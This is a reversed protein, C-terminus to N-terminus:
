FKHGFHGVVESFASISWYRSLVDWGYSSTFFTWNDRIPLQQHVKWRAISSTRVNVRVGWFTAWFTFKDNLFLNGYIETVSSALSKLNSMCSPNALLLLSFHAHGQALPAEWFKLTGRLIVAIASPLVEFKAHLQPKCWWLIVGLPFTIM